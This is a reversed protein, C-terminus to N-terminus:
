VPENSGYLHYADVQCSVDVSKVYGPENDPTIGAMKASHIIASMVGEVIDPISKDRDKLQESLELKVTLVLTETKKQKKTM